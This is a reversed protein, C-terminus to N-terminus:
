GLWLAILPEKTNSLPPQSVAVVLDWKPFYIYSLHACAPVLDNGLSKVFCRHFSLSSFVEPIINKFYKRWIEGQNFTKEGSQELLYWILACGSFLEFSKRFRERCILQEHFLLCLDMKCGAWVFWINLRCAPLGQANRCDEPDASLLAERVHPSHFVVKEFCIRRSLRM